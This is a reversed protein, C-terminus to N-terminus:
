ETDDLDLEDYSGAPQDYDGKPSCGVDSAPLNPAKAVLLGISVAM